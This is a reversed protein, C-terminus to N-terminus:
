SIVRYYYISNFVCEALMIGVGIEWEVGYRMSEM